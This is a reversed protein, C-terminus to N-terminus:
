QSLYIVRKKGPSVILLAGHGDYAYYSGPNFAIANADDFVADDFRLCFELGPHCLYAHVGVIQPAPSWESLDVKWSEDPVVPTERWGEFRGLGAANFFGLGKKAITSAVPDPLVFVQFSGRAYDNKWRPEESYVMDKVQLSDPLVSLVRQKEWRDFAAYGGAICAAFLLLALSLARKKFAHVFGLALALALALLIAISLFLLLWVSM